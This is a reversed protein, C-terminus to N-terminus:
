SLGVRRLLDQFRPDSRLSDYYPDIKLGQLHSDGAAYARELLAIAEEKDGLGIYLYALETLSVYDKGTKLKHLIARAESRRGSMALAYGLYCKISTTEEVTSIGKRYENLAQEYMGKAGYILGLDIHSYGTSAGLDMYQRQKEIAEDYRRAISLARAERSRLGAQLPDLEQARKVEALAETRDNVERTIGL